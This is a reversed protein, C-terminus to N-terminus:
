GNALEAWVLKGGTVRDHGWMATLAAVLHLGYGGPREAGPTRPEPSTAGTDGVVLRIAGPAQSVAVTFDGGVHALANSALESVVLESDAAADARGWETLTDTVFQRAESTADLTPAFRRTRPADSPAPASGLVGSHLACVDTFPAPRRREATTAAYACFLSFHARSALRNWLAELAIAAAVNGDDWLLAVMEGFLRVPRARAAETVIDGVVREFRLWDPVGDVMFLGLTEAADLMLLRGAACMSGVDVGDADLYQAFAQRHEDTAIVIATSDQLLVQVLFRGVSDVLADDTGYFQVVHEGDVLRIESDAQM